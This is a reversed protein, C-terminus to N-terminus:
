ENWSIAGDLSYGVFDRHSRVGITLRQPDIKPVVIGEDFEMRDPEPPGVPAVPFERAGFFPSFKVSLVMVARAFLERFEYSFRQVVERLVIVALFKPYYARVGLESVGFEDDGCICGLEIFFDDTSKRRLRRKDPIKALKEVCSSRVHLVQTERSAFTVLWGLV